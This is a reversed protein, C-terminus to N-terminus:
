LTINASYFNFRHLGGLAIFCGFVAAGNEVEEMLYSYGSGSLKIPLALWQMLKMGRTRNNEYIREWDRIRYIKAV